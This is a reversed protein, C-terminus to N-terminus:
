SAVSRKESGDRALRMLGAVIGATIKNHMM